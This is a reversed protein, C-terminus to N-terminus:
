SHLPITAEIMTEQNHTGRFTIKGKLANVRKWMEILGFSRPAAKAHRLVNTQTQRLVRFITTSCVRDVLIDEPDITVECLTGTRDQVEKAHWEETRPGM